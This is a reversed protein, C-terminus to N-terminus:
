FCFIYTFEQILNIHFFLYMISTETVNTTTFYLQSIHINKGHGVGLAHGTGLIIQDYRFKM